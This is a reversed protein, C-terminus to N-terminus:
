VIRNFLVSGSTRQFGAAAEGKIFTVQKAYMMRYQAAAAANSYMQGAHAFIRSLAGYTVADVYETFFIEPVHKTDLTVSVTLEMRCDYQADPKPVLQVAYPKRFCFYKPCGEYEQYDDPYRRELEDANAIRLRSGGCYVRRVTEAKLGAPLNFGYRALGKYATFKNEIVVCGTKRCIDNVTDVIAREMVFNPCGEAVSSILPFFQEVEVTRM